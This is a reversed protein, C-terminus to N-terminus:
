VLEVLEIPVVLDCPVCIAVKMNVCSFLWGAPTLHYVYFLPAFRPLVDV